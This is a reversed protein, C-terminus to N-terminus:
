FSVTLESHFAKLEKEVNKGFAKDQRLENLEVISLHLDKNFAGIKSQFLLTMFVTCLFQIMFRFHMSEKWAQFGFANASNLRHFSFVSHLMYRLVSDSQMVDHRNLMLQMSASMELITSYQSLRGYWHQSMYKDFLSTNLLKNMQYRQIYWLCHKGNLDHSQLISVMEDADSYAELVKVLSDEIQSQLHKIKYQAHQHVEQVLQLFHVLSLGVRLPNLCEWFM